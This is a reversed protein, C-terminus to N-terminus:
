AEDFRGMAVLANAACFTPAIRRDIAAIQKAFAVAEEFQRDSFYRACAVVAIPRSFPDVARAIEIERRSEEVRGMSRLYDSYWQHGTGYNPNLDLGRRYDREAARFDW